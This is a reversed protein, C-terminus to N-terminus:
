RRRGWLGLGLLGLGYLVLTAPAPVATPTAQLLGLQAPGTAPNAGADVTPPVTQQQLGSLPQDIGFDLVSDLIAGAVSEVSGTVQPAPPPLTEGDGNGGVGGSGGGSANDPADDAPNGPPSSPDTPQTQGTGGPGQRGPPRSQYYGGPRGSRGAGAPGGTPRDGSEEAANAPKTDQGPGGSSSNVTGAIRRGNAIDLKQSGALNGEGQGGGGAARLATLFGNPGGGSGGTGSAAGARVSGDSWAAAGGYGVAAGSRSGNVDAFGAPPLCMDQVSVFNNMSPAAHSVTGALLAGAAAFVSWLLHRVQM